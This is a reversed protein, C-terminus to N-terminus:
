LSKDSSADADKVSSEDSDASSSVLDQLSSDKVEKLRKSEERLKGKFFERVKKQFSQIQDYNFEIVYDGYELFEKVGFLAYIGSNTQDRQQPFDQGEYVVDNNDHIEIVDIEWNKYVENINQICWKGARLKAGTVKLDKSFCDYCYCKVKKKNEVNIVYFIWQNPIYIIYVFFKAVKIDKEKYDESWLVSDFKNKNTYNEYAKTETCLLVKYEKKKKTYHLGLERSYARIIADSVANQANLTQLDLSHTIIESHVKVKAYIKEGKHEEDSDDSEYHPYPVRHYVFEHQLDIAFQKAPHRKVFYCLSVALDNFVLQLDNQYSSVNIDKYNRPNWVGQPIHNYQLNCFYGMEGNGLTKIANLSTSVYAINPCHLVQDTFSYVLQYYGPLNDFSGFISFQHESPIDFFNLFDPTLQIDTSLYPKISQKADFVPQLCDILKQIQDTVIDNHCWNKLNLLVGLVAKSLENDDNYKLNFQKSIIRDLFMFFNAVGIGSHQWKPTLGAVKKLISINKSEMLFKSANEQTALNNYDTDGMNILDHKSIFLIYKSKNTLENPTSSFIYELNNMKEPRSGLTNKPFTNLKLFLDIVTEPNITPTTTVQMRGIPITPNKQPTLASSFVISQRQSDTLRLRKSSSLPLKINKKLPSEASSKVQPSNSTSQADNIANLKKILDKIREKTNLSSKLSQFLSTSLSNTLTDDDGKPPKAITCNITLVDKEDNVNPKCRKSLYLCKEATTTVHKPFKKYTDVDKLLELSFYTGNNKVPEHSSSKRKRSITTKKNSFNEPQYASDQKAKAARSHRLQKSNENLVKLYVCEKEIDENSCSFIPKKPVTIKTTINICYIYFDKKFKQGVMPCQPFKKIELFPITDKSFLEKRELFKPKLDTYFYRLNKFTKISDLIIVIDAESWSSSFFYVLEILAANSSILTPIAEECYMRATKTDRSNGFVIHRQDKFKPSKWDTDEIFSKCGNYMFYVNNVKEKIFGTTSSINQDLLAKQFEISKQYREFNIEVSLIKWCSSVALIFSAYGYGGGFDVGYGNYKTSIYHLLSIHCNASLHGHFGLLQSTLGANTTIEKGVTVIHDFQRKISDKFSDAIEKDDHLCFQPYMYGNGDDVDDVDDDDDDSKKSSSDNDSSGDRDDDNSKTDDSDYEYLLSLASKKKALIDNVVQVKIFNANDNDSCLGATMRGFLDERIDDNDM